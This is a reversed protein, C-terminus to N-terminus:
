RGRAQKDRLRALADSQNRPIEALRARHLNISLEYLGIDKEPLQSRYEALVTQAFQIYDESMRRRDAYYRLIEEESATTSQVKGFLENSQRAQEARRALVNKDDTPAGLQWYLNDPLRERLRDLDVPYASNAAQDPIQPLAPDPTNARGSPPQESAGAPAPKRATTPPTSDGVAHWLLAVGAVLAILALGITKRM